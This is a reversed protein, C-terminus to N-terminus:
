KAQWPPSMSNTLIVLRVKKIWEKFSPYTVFLNAYRDSMCVFHPGSSKETLFTLSTDIPTYKKRKGEWKDLDLQLTTDVKEPPKGSAECPCLLAAALFTWEGFRKRM